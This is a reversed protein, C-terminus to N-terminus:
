IKMTFVFKEMLSIDIRSDVDRIHQSLEITSYGDQFRKITESLNIKNAEYTPDFIDKTEINIIASHKDNTIICYKGFLNRGNLLFTPMIVNTHCRCVPFYHSMYKPNFERNSCSLVRSIEEGRHIIEYFFFNDDDNFDKKFKSWKKKFFIVKLGVKQM